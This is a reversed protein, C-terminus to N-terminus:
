HNNKTVWGWPSVEPSNTKTRGGHPHDVPNMAVGRVKVKKGLKRLEGSKGYIIFKRYINANRGSSVMTEFSITIKKKTPLLIVVIRLDNNNLLIQAFTGSSTVLKSKSNILINSIVSGKKLYLIPLFYGLINNFYYKPKFTLIKFFDSLFLGAIPKILSTSGNSYKILFYFLYNSKTYVIDKIVSLSKNRWFNYNIKISDFFISNNKTLLIRRGSINRSSNNKKKVKFYSSSTKILYISKKNRSSNSISKNNILLIILKISNCYLWYSLYDIIVKLM